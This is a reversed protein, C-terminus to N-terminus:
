YVQWWPRKILWNVVLTLVLGKPKRGVDKIFAFDVQIMIPHIMAWIFVAVPLHVHAVELGALWSFVEQVLNGLMVGVVICLGVWLSLYPEFV